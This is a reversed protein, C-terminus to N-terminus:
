APKRCGTYKASVRWAHVTAVHKSRNLSVFFFQLTM